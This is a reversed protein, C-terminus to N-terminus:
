FSFATAASARLPLHGSQKLEQVTGTTKGTDPYLTIFATKMKSNISNKLYMKQKEQM